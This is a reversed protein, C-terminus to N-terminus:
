FRRRRMKKYRGEWKRQGGLDYVEREYEGITIMQKMTSKVLNKIRASDEDRHQCWKDQSLLADLDARSANKSISIVVYPEPGRRAYTYGADNEKIYFYLLWNSPAHGDEYVVGKEDVYTYGYYDYASM